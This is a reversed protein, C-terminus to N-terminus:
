TESPLTKRSFPDNSPGIVYSNAVYHTIQGRLFNPVVQTIEYENGDFYYTWVTRKLFNGDNLVFDRSLHFNPPLHVKRADREIFTTFDDQTAAFPNEYSMPTIIVREKFEHPKSYASVDNMQSEKLPDYRKLTVNTGLREFAKMHRKTIRGTTGQKFYDVNASPGALVNVKVLVESDSPDDPDITTLVAPAGILGQAFRVPKTDDGALSDGEGVQYAVRINDLDDLNLKAQSPAEFFQLGVVPENLEPAVRIEPGINGNTQVRRVFTAPVGGVRGVYALLFGDLGGITVTRANARNTISDIFHGTKPVTRMSWSATANNSFAFRVTSQTLTDESWAVIYNNKNDRSISLSTPAVSAQAITNGIGFGGTNQNYPIHIIENSNNVIVLDITNDPRMSVDYFPKWGVGGNNEFIPSTVNTPSYGVAYLSGGRVTILGVANENYAFKVVGGTEQTLPVSTDQIEEGDLSYVALLAVTAAGIGGAQWVFLRNVREVIQLGLSVSNTDNVNRVSPKASTMNAVKRWSFGLDESKMLSVESGVLSDMVVAWLHGNSQRVVSRFNTKHGILGRSNYSRNLIATNHVKNIM